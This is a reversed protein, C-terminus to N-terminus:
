YSAAPGWLQVPHYAVVPVEVGRGMEPDNLGYSTATGVPQRSAVLIQL